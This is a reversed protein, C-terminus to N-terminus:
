DAVTALEAAALNKKLVRGIKRTYARFEEARRRMNALPARKAKGYTLKFECSGTHISNPTNIGLNYIELVPAPIYLYWFAQRESSPVLRELHQWAEDLARKFEAEAAIMDEVAAVFDDWPVVPDGARMVNGHRRRLDEWDIATAM